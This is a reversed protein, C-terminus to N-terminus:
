TSNLDKLLFRLAHPLRRAWAGEHHLAWQEQRYVLDRQPRYGKKALLRQMRRVSAYYHRSRAAQAQSFERTGADLYIKGPAFAAQEVYAYIVGRAYWLSPSMVGVFGFTERQHFFAYLSILGGMSSGIMGTQERGSLTRFDKDIRAKLTDVVFRLYDNGRGGGHYPDHFPSYESIRQGGMNPIGVIIAELGEHSLEEMTEDVRWEGAYSTAQDFLNQGDHMYIVPYRRGAAQNYSPPLYVLVNRHNNLQPSWVHELIQVNGAVTHYGEGTHELYNRWHKAM